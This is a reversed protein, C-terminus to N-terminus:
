GATVTPVAVTSAKGCIYGGQNAPVLVAFGQPSGVPRLRQAQRVRQRNLEIPNTICRQRCRSLGCVPACLSGGHLRLCLGGSIHQVIQVSHDPAERQIDSLTHLRRAPLGFKSPASRVKIREGIARHQRTQVYM